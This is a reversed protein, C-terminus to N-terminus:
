IRFKMGNIVSMSPGDQKQQSFSLDAGIFTSGNM